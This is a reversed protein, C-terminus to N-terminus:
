TTKKRNSVMGLGKLIGITIFYFWYSNLFLFSVQFSLIYGLIVPSVAFLTRGYKTALLYLNYLGAILRACLFMVWITLGNVNYLFTGRYGAVDLHWRLNVFPTSLEALTAISLASFGSDYLSPIVVTSLGLVHHVITSIQFLSTGYNALVLIFDYMLYGMIVGMGYENAVACTVGPEDHCKVGSYLTPQLLCSALLSSLTSVVRSDWELRQFPSLRSYLAPCLRAFLLRSSYLGIWCLIFTAGATLLSNRSLYM